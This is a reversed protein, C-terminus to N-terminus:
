STIKVDQIKHLIDSTINEALETFGMVVIKLGLFLLGVIWDLLGKILDFIDLQKHAGAYTVTTPLGKLKLKKQLKDLDVEDSDYSTLGTSTATADGVFIVAHESSVLIDGAQRSGDTIRDFGCKTLESPMGTTNTIQINKFAEIDLIQGALYVMTCSSASCDSECINEIKSPDYDVKEAEQKFTLRHNQCYGINDNNAAAIALGAIEQQVEQWWFRGTGSM